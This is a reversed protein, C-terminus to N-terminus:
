TIATQEKLKEFLKLHKKAVIEPAFNEVVHKRAERSFKKYLEEDSLLKEMYESVQEMNQSEALFGTQNHKVIDPIGGVNFAISPIGCASAETVTYGFAESPSFHLFLDSANYVMALSLEDHLFPLTKIDYKRPLEVTNPLSGLLVWQIDKSLPFIELLKKLQKLILAGKQKYSLNLLATKKNKEWGLKERLFNKYEKNPLPSFINVDLTNPIVQIPPAEWIASKKAEEALWRSPTIIHRHKFRKFYKQKYQFLSYASDKEKRSGLLPCKGCHRQFKSCDPYTYSCGGTFLWMDHLTFVVPTKQSLEALKKLSFTNVNNWHIHIIDFDGKLLENQSIAPFKGPFFPFFDKVRKKYFFDLYKEEFVTRGWGLVRKLPSASTEIYNLRSTKHEVRIVVEADTHEQLAKYLRHMAIGAGGKETYGALLIKM